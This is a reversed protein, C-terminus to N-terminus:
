CWGRVGLPRIRALRLEPTTVDVPIYPHGAKRCGLFGILMEPEKHGRVVVPSGDSGLTEALAGALSDSRSVLDGWSLM